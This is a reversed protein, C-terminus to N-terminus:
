MKSNSYNVVLDRNSEDLLRSIRAQGSVSVKIEVRMNQTNFSARREFFYQEIGYEINANNGYIRGLKGMIFSANSPKEFSFGSYEWFGGSENEKLLIYIIRGEDRSSLDLQSLTGIDYRITLYQGRLADFPDVPRTKLIYTKGSIMPWALIIVATIIGFTLIISFIVLKKYESM